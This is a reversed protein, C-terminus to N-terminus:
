CILDIGLTRGGLKPVLGLRRRGSRHAAFVALVEARVTAPLGALAQDPARREDLWAALAADLVRIGGAADAMARVPEPAHWGGALDAVQSAYLDGLPLLPEPPADALLLATRNAPHAPLGREAAARVRLQFRHVEAALREPGLSASGTWRAAAAVANASPAPVRWLRDPGLAAECWAAALAAEPSGDDLLVIGRRGSERVAERVVGGVVAALRAPRDDAM